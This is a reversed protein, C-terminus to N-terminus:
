KRLKDVVRGVFYFSAIGSLFAFDEPTYCLVVKEWVTGSQQLAVILLAMKYVYYLGIASYAYFPRVFFNAADVWKINTIQMQSKLAEKQADLLAISAAADYVVEVERLHLSARNQELAWQKDLMDLEHKNDVRKNFFAFLEPLLRMLGGGLLTILSLM